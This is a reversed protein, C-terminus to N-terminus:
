RKVLATNDKLINNFYCRYALKQMAYSAAARINHVCGHVQNHSWLFLQQCQAGGVGGVVVALFDFQSDTCIQM